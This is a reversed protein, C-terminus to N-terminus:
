GLNASGTLQIVARPRPLTLGPSASHWSDVRGLAVTPVIWEWIPAGTRGRGVVSASGDAAYAFRRNQVCARWGQDRRSARGPVFECVEVGAPDDVVGREGQSRARPRM